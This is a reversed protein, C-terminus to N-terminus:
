IHSSKDTIHSYKDTFIVPDTGLTVPNTWFIVENTRSLTGLVHHPDSKEFFQTNHLYMKKEFAPIIHTTFALFAPINSLCHPYKLLHLVKEEREVYVFSSEKWEM